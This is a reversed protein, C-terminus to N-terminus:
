APLVEKTDIAGRYLVIYGSNRGNMGAQWKWGYGASWEQMVLRMAAFVQPIALMDLAKGVDERTLGLKHVKVCNAYSTSCNMSGLTNYREHGSLFAIMAPRSRTNV